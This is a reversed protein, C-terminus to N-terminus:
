KPVVNLQRVLEEGAVIHETITFVEKRNKRFDKLFQVFEDELTEHETRFQHSDYKFPDEILETLHHLHKNTRALLSSCKKDVKLLNIEINQMMDINGKKSIWLFYKDILHHLFRLDDKYFSLDSKWHETLIYLKQWDAKQIYNDKPRNRFDNM